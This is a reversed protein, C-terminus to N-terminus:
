LLFYFMPRPPTLAGLAPSGLSVAGPCRPCPLLPPSLRHRDLRVSVTSTVGSNILQDFVRRLGPLAWGDPGPWFDHVPKSDGALRHGPRPRRVLLRAGVGLFLAERHRNDFRLTRRVPGGRTSCIHRFVSRGQTPFIHRFVSRGRNPFIHRFVSGGRNPSIPGGIVRGRTVSKPQQIRLGSM